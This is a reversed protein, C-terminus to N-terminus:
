GSTKAAECPCLDSPLEEPLRFLGCVSSKAKTCFTHGGCNFRLVFGPARVGWKQLSVSCSAHRTRM